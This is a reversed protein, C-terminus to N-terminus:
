GADDGRRVRCDDRDSWKDRAQVTYALSRPRHASLSGDNIIRGGRPLQASMVRVAERRLVGRRGRQYAVHAM